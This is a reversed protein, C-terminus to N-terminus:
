KQGTRADFDKSLTLLSQVNDMKEKHTDKYYKDYLYTFQDRLENREDIDKSKMVLTEYSIILDALPITKAKEDPSFTEYQTALYTTAFIWVFCGAIIVVFSYPVIADIGVPINSGIIFPVLITQLFVQIGSGSAKSIRAITMDIISRGINQEYKQLPRYALERTTDFLTYKTGKAFLNQIGGLLVCLSLPSIISLSNVDGASIKGSMLLFAYFAVGLVFTSVPTVLASFRWGYNRIWNRTSISILISAIGSITFFASYAATYSQATGGSWIKLSQKWQLEVVNCILGYLLSMLAICGLYPNNILYHISAVFGMSEKSKDKKPKLVENEILVHAYKNQLKYYIYTLLALMGAIVFCYSVFLSIFQTSLATSGKVPTPVQSMIWSLIGAALASGANGPINFLSYFRTSEDKSTYDNAANWFLVSPLVGGSIEAMIYFIAYVWISLLNLGTVLLPSIFPIDQFISLKKTELIWEASPQLYDRLPLLVTGFLIFFAIFIGSTAAYIMFNKGRLSRSIRQYFFSFLMVSPIVLFFKVTAITGADGGPAAIILADKLIRMTTYSSLVLIMMLCFTFFKWWEGPRIAINNYIFRMFFNDQPKKKTEPVDNQTSDDDTQM